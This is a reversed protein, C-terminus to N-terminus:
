GYPNVVEAGAPPPATFKNLLFDPIVTPDTNLCVMDTYWENGRTDGTHEAVYVVYYGDADVRPVLDKQIQQDLVGLPFQYALISKNDIQVVGGIRINPNLLAKVHIGNATQEPWGIMGTASTLVTVPGPMYAALPVAQLKGDQISWNLDHTRAIDRMVDRAMGYVAKGRPLQTEPLPPIYGQQVGLATAVAGIHQGPTSGAALTQNIVAFNYAEDGDAARIDVYTDAPSERGRRVQVITGQFVLGYQSSNQYGASLSLQAFEGSGPVVGAAGMGQMLQKATNDSVNYIRVDVSNPTQIDGRRVTFKFHFDSLDLGQGGPKGVILSARRIFQTSM